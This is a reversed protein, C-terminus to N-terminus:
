INAALIEIPHPLNTNSLRLTQSRCSYGTALYQCSKHELAPQWHMAFLKQSNALHEKEHGYTGAMGCCGIAMAKLNLGISKFTTEWHKADIAQLAQETCHPLLTYSITEDITTTSINLHSFDNKALIEALTEVKGDLRKAFKNFEDRFILTISNELGVVPINQAFIPNLLDHWKKTTLKFKDIFGGVLLAKGSVQPKLVYITYGLKQLVKISAFLINHDLLASFVDALIVIPKDVKKFDISSKYFSASRQKLEARLNKKNSFTPTNVMGMSPLLHNKVMFNWFTPTYQAISLIHELHGLAFERLTRARYNKHYYDLFRTKLDPISVKVPCKGACSKCGLCEKMTAFVEDAMAIEDTKKKTAINRLWEKVLTARGKPSHIRNKMVKYSPCMVNSAEQNFCAANGNCLFASFYEDQMNRTIVKDFDGRFPLADIKSIKNIDATPNVLKGPNLRNGPDFLAKIEAMIGYLKDGFVHKVFEGRVGKGHEGWLLGHYRDTLELTKMTIPRILHKDKDNQMDLAPRVHICGVDVHGYMAYSLNLSDLYQEFDRVFDHLHEPPVIADEVFALPKRKGPVNAALGVALSRVAWLKNIDDLNEIVAFRSNRGKLEEILSNTKEKLITEDNEAFEVFNSISVRGETNLLKAIEPWNPLSEASKQVKDDVAEIALPLYNILFRADALSDLFTDYHVVILSKYKPIDILKLTAEAIFCLTGESGSILRTLDLQDNIYAHRLNYGSLPRKLDPFRQNIEDQIPVLLDKIKSHLQSIFDNKTCIEEFESNDLCSFEYNEGNILVANISKVHDSTKGYILSGKGAADTAIMGGITARDATSINPAFMLGHPKLYRNLESLVVGPGVTITKSETSLDSIVTMYRSTDVVM